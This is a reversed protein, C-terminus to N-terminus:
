DTGKINLGQYISQCIEQLPFKMWKVWGHRSAWYWAQGGILLGGGEKVFHILNKAQTSDYADMCYVGLSASLEAGAQVKTGAGLLLKSLSDLHHHVGVLAGPCPKLWDVANLSPPGL